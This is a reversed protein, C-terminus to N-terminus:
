SSRENFIVEVRDDYVTFTLRGSKGSSYVKSLDVAEVRPGSVTACRLEAKATIPEPYFLFVKSATKAVFGLSCENAGFRVVTNGLDKSSENVIGIDVQRSFLAGTGCGTLLAVLFGGLLYAFKMACRVRGQRKQSAVFRVGLAGPEDM